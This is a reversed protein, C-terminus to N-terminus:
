GWEFWSTINSMWDDSNDKSEISEIYDIPKARTSIDLKVLVDPPVDSFDGALIRACVGKPVYIWADSVGATNQGACAYSGSACASKNQKVINKGDVIAVCKERSSDYAMTQSSIVAAVIVAALLISKQM